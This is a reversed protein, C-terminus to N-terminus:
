VQVAQAAQVRAIFSGEDATPEVVEPAPLVQVAARAAVYARVAAAAQVKTGSFATLEEVGLAELVDKHNLAQAETWAWFKAGSDGEESWHREPAGEALWDLVPQFWAVDPKTVVQDAVPAIRCKGVVLDHTLPDMDCVVTFEYDTGERVIPKMGLKKVTTRGNEEALVHETKARITVFVDLNCQLITDILRNHDPTVDRWATWSNPTRQRKMANAQQELAGGKGMWAHSLSDIVLVKYGAREASLIADIYKDAEFSDLEVVDFDFRDAYLSASGRETDILAIRGQRFAATPTAFTLATYTKGSGAPGAFAWRLKAMRKTAKQYEAM